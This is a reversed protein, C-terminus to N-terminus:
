ARAVSFPASSVKPFPSTLPTIATSEAVFAFSPPENIGVSANPIGPDDVKASTKPPRNITPTLGPFSIRVVCRSTVNENIHSSIMALTIVDSNHITNILGSAFAVCTRGVSSTGTIQATDTTPANAFEFLKPSM